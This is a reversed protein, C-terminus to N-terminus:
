IQIETNTAFKMKFITKQYMMTNQSFYSDSTEEHNKANTYYDLHNKYIITEAFYVNIETKPIDM